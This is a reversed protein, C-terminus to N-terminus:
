AYAALDIHNYDCSESWWGRPIDALLTARVELRKSGPVVIHGEIRRSGLDAGTSQNRFGPGRYDISSRDAISSV